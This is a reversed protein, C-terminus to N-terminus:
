TCTQRGDSCGRAVPDTGGTGRQGQTVAFLITSDTLDGAQRGSRGNRGPDSETM